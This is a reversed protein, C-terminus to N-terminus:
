DHDHPNELVICEIISYSTILTIGFNIDEDFYGIKLDSSSKVLKTALFIVEKVVNDSNVKLREIDFPKTCINFKALSEFYFLKMQRKLKTSGSPIMKNLEVMSDDILSSSNIYHDILWGYSVLNNFQLKFEIEAPDRDLNLIETDSSAIIEILKGLITARALSDGNIITISGQNDKFEVGQRVM